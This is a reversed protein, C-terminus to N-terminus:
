DNKPVMIFTVEIADTTPHKDGPSFVVETDQVKKGEAEATVSNKFQDIFDKDNPSVGGKTGGIYDMLAKKKVDAASKSLGKDKVNKDLWKDLNTQSIEYTPFRKSSSGDPYKYDGEEGDEIFIFTFKKEKPPAQPTAGDAGAAMPDAAMDQENLKNWDKYNRIYM